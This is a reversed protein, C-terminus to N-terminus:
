HPSVNRTWGGGGINEVLQAIEDDVDPEQAQVTTANQQPTIEPKATESDLRDVWAV